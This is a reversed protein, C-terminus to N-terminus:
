SIFSKPSYFIGRAGREVCQIRNSHSLTEIITSLDRSDLRHSFARLLEARSVKEKSQIFRYVADVLAGRENTMILDLVRPLLLESQALIQKAGEVHRREVLLTRESAALIMSVKLLHVHRRSAYGSLSPDNYFPSNHYFDRYIEEYLDWADDKLVVEGDLTQIESLLKILNENIKLEEESLRPRPVPDPYEEVFVFIIRSTLGGGIADPPIAQRVWDVTSAGLLGLCANRIKESGRGKTRYEFSDKCDYLPILLSGLGAEYSKKNLFTNLEDVIVFGESTERLFKKDEM